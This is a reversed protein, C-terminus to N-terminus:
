SRRRELMEVELQLLLIRRQMFAREAEDSKLREQVKGIWFRHMQVKSWYYWRLFRRLTM